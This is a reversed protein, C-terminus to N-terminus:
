LKPKAEAPATITSRFVWLKQLVFLFAALVFVMVGQVVQHPYGLRDVLVFLAALNILYGVGYAVCYRVLAAGHAGDHGFSWRKNFIFTQAIGVAYLLTMAAKHDVGLTTILLYLLYAVANSALGVIGYRLLQGFTGKM